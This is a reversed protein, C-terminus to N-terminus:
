DFGCIIQPTVSCTFSFWLPFRTYNLPLHFWLGFIVVPTALFPGLCRVSSFTYGFPSQFGFGFFILAGSLPFRATLGFRFYVRFRCRVSQSGVEVEFRIRVSKASVAFSFEFQIRVPKLAFGFRSRVSKLVSNLSFEFRSQVSKLSVKFRSRVSKSKSGAGFRTFVSKM